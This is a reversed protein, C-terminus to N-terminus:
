KVDQSQASQSDVWRMFRAENLLVRRGVRGIAGELGNSAIIVAGSKAKAGPRPKASFILARLANESFARHKDAFQAVTLWAAHLGTSDSTSLDRQQVTNAAGTSQATKVHALM